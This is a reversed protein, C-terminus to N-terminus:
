VAPAFDEKLRSLVEHTFQGEERGNFHSLLEALLLNRGDFDSFGVQCLDPSEIRLQVSVDMHIRFKNQTRSMSSFCCHRSALNMARQM